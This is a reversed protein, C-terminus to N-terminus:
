KKPPPPLPFPGRMLESYRRNPLLTNQYKIMKDISKQTGSEQFESPNDPSFITPKFGVRVRIINVDRLEEPEFWGMRAVWGNEQLFNTLSEVASSRKRWAEVREQQEPDFPDPGLGIKASSREVTVGDLLTEPIPDTILETRVVSLHATQLAKVLSGAARRAEFDPVSEVIINIGALSKLEDLTSTNDLFYTVSLERPALSFQLENNIEREAELTRNAINLRTEIALNEQRTRAAEKELDSARKREEAAENELKGARENAVGARENAVGAREDAKGADSIATAAEGRAAAIAANSVEDDIAAIRTDISAVHKTLPRQSYSRASELRQSWWSAIVLIAGLGGLVIYTTHWFDQADELTKRDLIAKARDANLKSLEKSQSETPIPKIAIQKTTDPSMMSM